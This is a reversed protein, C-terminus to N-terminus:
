AFFAAVQDREVPEALLYGQARDCGLARARDL